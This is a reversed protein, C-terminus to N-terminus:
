AKPVHAQIEKEMREYCVPCMGHTIVALSHDSIYQDLQEWSEHDLRIKHCYSCVTLLGQIIRRQQLYTHGVTVIAILITAITLVSGRFWNLPSPPTGFWLASLDMTENLWILLLLILFALFQWLAVRTFGDGAASVHSGSSTKM